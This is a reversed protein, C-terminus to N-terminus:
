GAGCGRRAATTSCGSRTATRSAAATRTWRTSSCGSRFRRRWGTWAPSRRTCGRSRTSASSRCRTSRRRPASRARGSRSTSRSRPSRTRAPGTRAAGGLLDRDPRVADAASRGRPGEPLRRVRRGTAHGAGRARRRQGARVGRAGAPRPVAGGPLRDLAWEVWGREDRGETYADGFGLRAASTPASGTTAGRRAPRSRRGAADAAGRRRVELRGRRGVDRAAHLRAPRHGRLARVAHPLQGPRRPVRGPARGSPHRRATSTPTSTSRARELGGRLDAQHRHRPADAGRLGEAPGLERGRVVAETWLFTPIAAKVPNTAPRSCTGSRAATPRRSARARGGLRGPDGVNGTLAALVCAARVAQEGYARRQVGYGQYLVGPRRTGYERALRAITDRPVGTIAEAWAPTKPTRDRAGLLYDQYSEAGRAGPPMQSADFGVCHASVFAADYLRETVLVYAMASLMAADTGPRIPVWEDALAVASRTM